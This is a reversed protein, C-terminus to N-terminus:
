EKNSHYHCFLLATCLHSRCLGTCFRENILFLFIISFEKLEHSCSLSKQFQLYALSSSVFCSIIFYSVFTLSLYIPLKISCATVLRQLFNLLPFALLLTYFYYQIMLILVGVAVFLGHEALPLSSHSDATLSQACLRTDMKRIKEPVSHASELLSFVCSICHSHCSVCSLLLRCYWSLCSFQFTVGSVKVNHVNHM